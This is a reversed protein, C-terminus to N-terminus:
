FVIYNTFSSSKKSEVLNWPRAIQKGPQAPCLQFHKSKFFIQSNATKKPTSIIFKLKNKLKNKTKEKIKLNKM